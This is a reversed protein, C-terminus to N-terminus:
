VEQVARDAEAMRAEQERKRVVKRISEYHINLKRSAETISM